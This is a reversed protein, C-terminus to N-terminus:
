EKVGRRLAKGFSYYPMDMRLRPMNPTLTEYLSDTTAAPILVGADSSDESEARAAVLDAASPHVSITPLEVMPLAVSTAVVTAPVAVATQPHAAPANGSATFALITAVVMLVAGRILLANLNM